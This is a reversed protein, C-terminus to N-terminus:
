PAPRGAAPGTPRPGIAVAALGLAVCVAVWNSYLPGFLVYWLALVCAFVVFTPARCAGLLVVLSRVIVVVIAAALAVGVWGFRVWLDATVSHLEFTRGFMYHDAYGGADVHLSALGTKGAVRDTWNPVVGAGYGAPQLAFLERTAAWEPRGGAILSGSASIQAKSREQLSAGFAGGTALASTLFYVAVGIGGMLALAYWRDRLRMLGIRRAPRLQWLALTAALACVGFYSRADDALGIVGLTVLVAAPVVGRRRRELAGLVVFTTPVALNYKWSLDGRVLASGLGGAGYLLAIRHLPLVSGAWVVLGFSVIGSGLLGIAQLRDVSSVVHDTSSLEGLVLGSAASLVALCVILTALAYRRLAPLWLPLLLIALPLAATAGYGVREHVGLVAVAGAAVVRSARAYGDREPAAGAETGAGGDASRPAQIAATV